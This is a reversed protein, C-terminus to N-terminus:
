NLRITVEHLLSVRAVININIGVSKVIREPEKRSCVPYM